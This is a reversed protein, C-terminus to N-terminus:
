VSMRIISLQGFPLGHKSQRHLHRRVSSRGATGELVEEGSNMTITDGYDSLTEGDSLIIGTVDEVVNVSQTQTLEQASADGISLPALLLMGGLVVSSLLRVNKM